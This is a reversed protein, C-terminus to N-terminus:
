AALVITIAGPKGEHHTMGPNCDTSRYRTVQLRGETWQERYVRGDQYANGRRRKEEGKRDRM